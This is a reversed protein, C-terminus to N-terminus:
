WVNKNNSKYCIKNLSENLFVEKVQNSKINLLLEKIIESEFNSDLSDQGYKGTKPYLYAFYLKEDKIITFLYIRYSSSKGSNYSLRLKAIPNNSNANLRNASCNIKLEEFSFNFIDNILANECDKYSNNKLIKKVKKIFTDQFFYQM